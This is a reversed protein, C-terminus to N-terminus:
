KAWFIKSTFQNITGEKAVNAANQQYESTPYFVRSPNTDGARKPDISVPVGLPFGTRRIENYGELNGYGCLSIYKQTLIAEIKDPSNVWNVDKVGPTQTYYATATGADLGVAVFSATIGAEYLTQANGSIWGRSVAEAQLFLAEASSMLIADQSASKLLGPGIGSTFTNALAGADGFINGRVVSPPTTAPDAGVPVSLAFYATLRPDSFDNLMKVFYANARYYVNSGTPNGNQDYGYTHWFSSEQGGNADNNTFGPNAAAQVSGDLYGEGATSTLDTKAANSSLNSQRLAMRLKLTNAFKKWSTMNGKFVIDSTGPNTGGTSANITSIAADLQKVLDDYIAQGKDYAPFFNTSAQFAQTYPVDNYVDVLQEFVYAKMIMGIAKFNGLNPGGGLTILNVYNTANTYLQAFVQYNDTTFAYQQLQPSPVYNGSSTWYGGWVAYNSYNTNIIDASNKLAGALLFQPSTVSPTNPNVSLDLFNKKCSTIGVTFFATMILIYKKM